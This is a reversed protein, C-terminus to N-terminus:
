INYLLQTVGLGFCYKEMFGECCLTWSTSPPTVNERNFSITSFCLL